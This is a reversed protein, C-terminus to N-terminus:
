SFPETMRAVRVHEGGPSFDISRVMTPAGVKKVAGTAVDILAVQGTAHFKLLQYDYPTSMLSPFTRLRNRDGDAMKISPGSPENPPLPRPGRGDPILVTAIQKGGATFDFGNTLTLLIPSKSVQRPKNTALDTMWIYSGEEGHVFYAIAAGDPTWTSGSIRAGAPLAIQKRAGDVASIAQLGVRSSNTIARSRNAKYDIFVGGLEDFPKGFVKMPVPGDEIEDLFWKKDPSLNSLSVNLHRPALVADALEKPPQVYGEKALIEDAWTPAPAQTQAPRAAPAPAQALLTLPLLAVASVLVLRQAYESKM